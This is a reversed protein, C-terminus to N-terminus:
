VAQSAPVVKRLLATMGLAEATRRAEGLLGTAREDDAPGGRTLLMQAYEYQTHAVWPRAGMRANMALADEFHREADGWRALTAALAGLYRSVSGLSVEAAGVANLHAYPFLQVYLVGAGNRDDLRVAVESLLAVCFLWESDRPFAVFDDRALEAFASRAQQERGLECAVLPVLARFLRYGTYEHVSRRVLEGVDEFRGRERDLFLRVLRHSFAADWSQARRGVALAEDAFREAEVFEGRSLAWVSRMVAGYWQQSPQKVEDALAEYADIATALRAPDGLTMAMIVQLWRAHLARETDGTEEAIRLVEDAPAAMEEINPGWRALAHSVLAYGLTERDAIRRAIEVAETSLLSRRELSPEDRLAGALRAMLRVRLVSEEEGLAALGEELLPVLRTDNGARAWPFRGGYGLAARALHDPLQASRALAAAALFTEKAEPTSGARSLADGLGLLLVCRAEPDPSQKLELAQLALRYFRAAEEYALLEVARDGARGAYRVARDVDGGPAAEFYHHALEALHPQPDEGYLAELAEGARRHFLVRRPSTLGDYLTERILVHAFRLRGPAGPVSTLLREAVAEDLVDLLRDFALESLRELADLRFERGLVSALTLVNTCEDSLRRLRRGIVERVGQPIGLTWLESVDVDSLRGEAVLLRVVEGVFLPNGETESHITAVLEEPPAVGTSLEIYRAVDGVALGRLAIRHTVHERGLEALTAALPDRVTPDVDRYTGVLLIRSDRLETAVFRLMLLSPEDAAHLDDLVLVLADASSASRLFRTVADFLRFRAGEEELSPEPLYPFRDRLEPVIQAVEAAGGALQGRLGHPDTQEVLTRLSQVWPWYAPAGAAEWCRGVLVRAGRSRANRVVEEALRSKGIGPEGVLLILNGRGSIADDLAGTLEALENERGVLVGKPTEVAESAERQASVPDLRPDHALIARQLEKLEASPELGLEESLITRGEQYADLSEAQRGSRYLALMLQARLREHLPHQRVLGELEGVLSAHRGAELDVDVRQALCALRREELRAIETQAFPEYVFDALPAGRWLALAEVLKGESALREFRELDLEGPEVRLEYGVACTLIRDRGLTKRLQSVYVQLAKHATGPAREGWLAEILQDTSVVRNANLVLVALLARQKAAGIHLSRGGDLVELRGLIRFEM